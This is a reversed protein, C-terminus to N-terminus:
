LLYLSFFCMM